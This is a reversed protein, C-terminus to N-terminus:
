QFEGPYRSQAYTTLEQKLLPLERTIVEIVKTDNIDYDFYDHAIVNRFGKIENWPLDPMALRAESSLKSISEAMTQLAHLCALKTVRNHYQDIGDEIFSAIDEMSRFIHHLHAKDKDVRKRRIVHKIDQLPLAESNIRHKLLSSVADETVIDIKHNLLREMQEEFRTIHGYGEWTDTVSADLSVLFDIDSEPVDHGSLVSGFLRVNRLHCEAALAEIQNRKQIITDLTKTM